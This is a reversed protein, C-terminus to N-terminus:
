ASGLAKTTVIAISRRAKAGAWPRTRDDGAARAVTDEARGVTARHPVFGSINMPHHVVRLYGACWRCVLRAVRAGALRAGVACWGDVVRASRQHGGDACCLRHSQKNFRGNQHRKPKADRGACGARVM